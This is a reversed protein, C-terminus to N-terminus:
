ETRPTLRSRSVLREFLAEYGKACGAIDHAPAERLNNEAFRAATDPDSQIRSIARSLAEVEGVPVIYGNRGDELFDVQGGHDFTVLPLGVVMAELYVLGFGEHQTASVFLNSAALLQWKREETVHGLFHVRRDIGLERALAELGRREPGEGVVLLDV